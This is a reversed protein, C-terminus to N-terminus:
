PTRGELIQRVEECTEVVSVYGGGLAILCHVGPVFFKHPASKALPQILQQVAAPNVEVARGDVTHFTVLMIAAFAGIM